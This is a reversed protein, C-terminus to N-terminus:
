LQELVMAMSAKDDEDDKWFTACASMLRRRWADM